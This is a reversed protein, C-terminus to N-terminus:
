QERERKGERDRKSSDRKREETVKWRDLYQTVGNQVRESLTRAERERHTQTHIYTDRYTHTHVYTQRERENVHVYACLNEGEM